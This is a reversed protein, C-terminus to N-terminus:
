ACGEELRRVAEEEEQPQHQQQPQQEQQQQQQQEEETVVITTLPVGEKERRRGRRSSEEREGGGGQGVRLGLEGKEEERCLSLSSNDNSNLGGLGSGSSASASSASAASASSASSPLLLFTPTPPLPFHDDLKLDSLNVSPADRPLIRWIMINVYTAVLVDSSYHAKFALLSAALLTMSGVALANAARVNPVFRCIVLMLVMGHSTHGSFLLDGCSGTFKIRTFIDAVHAPPDWSSGHCYEAPNPILTVIFTMMRLGMAVSMAQCARQMVLCVPMPLTTKVLGDSTKVDITPGGWNVNTLTLRLLGLSFMLGCLLATAFGIIWEYREPLRDALLMLGLDQMPHPPGDAGWLKGELYYVYNHATLHVYEVFIWLLLFFLPSKTPPVGRKMLAWEFSLLARMERESKVTVRADPSHSSPHHHHHAHHSGSGTRELGNPGERQRLEQKIGLGVELAHEQRDAATSAPPLRRAPSANADHYASPPPSPDRPDRKSRRSEETSTAMTSTGGYEDEDQGPMLLHYVFELSDSEIGSTSRADRSSRTRSRAAAFSERKSSARGGPHWRLLVLVREAAPKGETWGKKTQQPVPRHPPHRHLDTSTTLCLSAAVPSFTISM